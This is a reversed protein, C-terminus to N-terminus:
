EPQAVPLPVDRFVIELTRQSRIRPYTVRLRQPQSESDPSLFTLKMRAGQEFMGNSQGHLRFARGQEDFLEIRNEQFLVEQPEPVVMGRIVLLTVDVRGNAPEVSEIALELDDQFHPARSDLDDVELAAMDGVAILEWELRLRSLSEAAIPPPDLRLSMSVQRSSGAAVNWGSPSSPPTALAKDADTVAEVVRPQSRYAVLNFQEEWITQVNFQFSHGVESTLEDYDLEESFVRRASTITAKMPGSYAIPYLGPEASTIVLGPERTDYHPRVRAKSQRCLEDLAEWFLGGEISVSVKTDRFSGYQDGLLLRNGTQREIEEVVQSADVNAADITVQGGRWLEILNLRRLLDKSRLRVEPDADQTGRELEIRALSGLGLLEEDAQARLTYSEDGLRRVLSAVRQGEVSGQGQAVPTWALSLLHLAVAARVRSNTM